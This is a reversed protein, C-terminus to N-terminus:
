VIGIDLGSGPPAHACGGTENLHLDITEFIVTTARRREGRPPPVNHSWRTKKDDCDTSRRGWPCSDFVQQQRGWIGEM